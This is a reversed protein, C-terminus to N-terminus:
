SINRNVTGRRVANTAPPVIGVASSGTPLDTNSSELISGGAFLTRLVVRPDPPTTFATKVLVLGVAGLVLSMILPM